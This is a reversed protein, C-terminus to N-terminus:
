GGAADQEGDCEQRHEDRKCVPRIPSAASSWAGFPVAAVRLAQKRQHESMGAQTAAETRTVSPHDGEQRNQKLNSESAPPIQRLLEGARRIARAQIRDATCCKARVTQCRPAMFLRVSM